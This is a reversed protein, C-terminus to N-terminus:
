AKGDALDKSAAVKSRTFTITGATNLGETWKRDTFYTGEMILDEGHEKVFIRAAGTHTNTDTPLPIRTYNVYMYNLEILGMQESPRVSVSITKSDSYKTDAEFQMQVKSFRAKIKVKGQLSDLLAGDGQGLWKQMVGWNSQLHVDWEGDIPPLIKRIVPAKCLWVFAPTEGLLYFLVGGWWAASMVPRQFGQLPGAWLDPLHYFNLLLFLGLCTIAFASLTKTLGIVQYM